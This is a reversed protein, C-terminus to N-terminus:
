KLERIKIIQNITKQISHNLYHVTKEDKTYPFIRLVNLLLMHYVDNLIHAGDPMQLIRNIIEEKAVLLHLELNADMKESRYSWHLDIDQLIKAVDVIWSDFFSDLLDILYIKGSETIMINELTLDGHCDSHPVNAFDHQKLIQIADFVEPSSNLLKSQLEFLKQSISESVSNVKKGERIPLSKFMFDIISPIDGMRITYFHKAMSQCNVFEMDFYFFGDKDYGQDFVKPVFFGKKSFSSQKRCQYELRKNYSIDGSIKRVFLGDVKRYLSLKCGSHGTLHKIFVPNSNKM